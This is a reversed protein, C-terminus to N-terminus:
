RGWRNMNYNAQTVNVVISASSMYRVQEPLQKGASPAISITFDSGEDQLAQVSKKLIGYARQYNTSAMGVRVLPAGEGWELLLADKISQAVLEISNVRAVQANITVNILDIVPAVFVVRYSDDARNIVRKIQAEIESRAAGQPEVFTIFLANINSVNAGRVSEEIAENWVSLFKLDPLNRRLLFDFEGLFVANSDYISPYRCLERLTAIDMPDAGASLMSHMSMKIQSDAVTYAYELSFPAGFEVQVVGMTETLILSFVDGANPQYGVVNAYGLVVRLMRFEDCEVNFVKENPLVNTFEPSYRYESGSSDILRIGSIKLGDGSPPVDIKYFPQSVGVTHTVVREQAQTCEAFGEGSPPITVPADVVYANGSSDHLKRGAALNFPAGGANMVKIKNRACKAMPVLGKLAADAFVTMDRAKSFPEMSAVEIQESLMALMQAMAQQHQLIRPDSARFLAALAPYQDISAAAKSLFDQKTLAM